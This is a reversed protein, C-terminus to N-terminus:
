FYASDSFTIKALSLGPVQNFFGSWPDKINSLSSDKIKNNVDNAIKTFHHHMLTRNHALFLWRSMILQHSMTEWNTM